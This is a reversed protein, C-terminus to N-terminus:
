NGVSDRFAGVLFLISKVRRASAMGPGNIANALDKRGQLRGATSM